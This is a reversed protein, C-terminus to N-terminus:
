TFFPAMPIPASSSTALSRPSSWAARRAFRTLHVAPRQSDARWWDPRRPQRQEPDPHRLDSRHRYRWAEGTTPSRGLGATCVARRLGARTLRGQRSRDSGSSQHHRLQHSLGPEVQRGAFQHRHADAAFYAGEARHPRGHDGTCSTAVPGPGRAVPRSGPRYQSRDQRRFRCLASGRRQQRQRLEHLDHQRRREDAARDADIGGPQCDQRRRWPLNRHCSDGASRHEPYQSIPLTLM